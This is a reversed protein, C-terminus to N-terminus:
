RNLIVRSRTGRHCSGRSRAARHRSGRYRAARHCAGRYCAARHRSGRYCDTVTTDAQIAVMDSNANINKSAFANSVSVMVIAAIAAFFVKKMNTLKKLTLLKKTEKEAVGELKTKIM